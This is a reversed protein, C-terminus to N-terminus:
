PEQLIDVFGKIGIAHGDLLVPKEKFLTEARQVALERRKKRALQKSFTAPLSREKKFNRKTRELMSDGAARVDINHSIAELKTEFASRKKKDRFDARNSFKKYTQHIQELWDELYEAIGDHCLIFHVLHDDCIHRKVTRMSLGLRETSRNVLEITRKLDTLLQKKTNDHKLDAKKARALSFIRSILLFHLEYSELQSDIERELEDSIDPTAKLVKKIDDIIDVINEELARCAVGTLEGGHCAARDVGNQILIQEVNQRIESDVTKRRKRIEKYEKFAEDRASKLPEIVQERKKEGNELEQIEELATQFRPLIHRREM